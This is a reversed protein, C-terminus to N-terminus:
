DVVKGKQELKEKSTYYKVIRLLMSPSGGEGDLGAPTGPVAVDKENIITIGEEMCLKNYLAIDNYELLDFTALQTILRGKKFNLM